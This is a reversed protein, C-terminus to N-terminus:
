LMDPPLSINAVEMLLLLNPVHKTNVKITHRKGYADICVLKYALAKKGFLEDDGVFPAWGHLPVGYQIPLNKKYIVSKSFDNLVIDGGGSSRFKPDTLDGYLRKVRVWGSGKYKISLEYDLVHVSSKSSNLLYPYLFYSTVRPHTPSELQGIMVALVQGGIKPKSSWHDYFVKFWGSFAFLATALKIMWEPM